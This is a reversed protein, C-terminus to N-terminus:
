IGYIYLLRIKRLERMRLAVRTSECFVEVFIGRRFLELWRAVACQNTLCKATDTHLLFLMKCYPVIFARRTTNVRTETSICYTLVICWTYHTNLKEDKQEQALSRPAQNVSSDSWFTKLHVFPTHLVAIIHKQATTLWAKKLLSHYRLDRTFM